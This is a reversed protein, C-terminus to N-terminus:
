RHLIKDNAHMVIHPNIQLDLSLMHSSSHIKSFLKHQQSVFGVLKLSFHSKSEINQHEVQHAKRIPDIIM